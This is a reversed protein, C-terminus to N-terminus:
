RRWLRTFLIAGLTIFILNPLWILWEPRASPTNRFNDAVMIFVFYCVAVGLSMAFGVSTERRHATIGLPIGVLALAFCGLSLSYRKNLETLTASKRESNAVDSQLETNLETLTLSSLGRQKQSRAYLEELSIPMVGEEMTIGQRIRRINGPDQPDREEYIANNLRLLVQKQKLDVELRGERAVVVRTPRESGDFEYVQINKLKAGEKQGVYIKRGPFQDIIRDSGFLALPDRTALDKVTDKMAQQAQPAVSINIWFCLGSLIIALALVPACLNPLSVGCARVAILENEASMKGFVLLVTTLMAWPITYMLSFPVIYAILRAVFILPVDHNVLLDLVRVLISGLVFVGSLVAVAILFTVLVQRTVYRHLLNMPLPVGFKATSPNSQM